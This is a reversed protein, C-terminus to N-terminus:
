DGFYQEIIKKNKLDYILGSGFSDEVRFKSRSKDIMIHHVVPCDKFKKLNYDNLIDDDTINYNYWYINRKLSNYNKSIKIHPLKNNTM